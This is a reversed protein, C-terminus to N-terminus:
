ISLLIYFQCMATLKVVVPSSTYKFSKEKLDIIIESSEMEKKWNTDKDKTHTHLPSAADTHNQKRSRGNGKDSM